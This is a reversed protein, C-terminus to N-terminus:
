RPRSQHRRIAEEHAKIDQEQYKGDDLKKLWDAKNDSNGINITPRTPKRTAM